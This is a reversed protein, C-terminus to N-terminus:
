NFDIHIQIIHSNKWNNRQVHKWFEHGSWYSSIFDHDLLHNSNISYFNIVQCSISPVVFFIYIKTEKVQFAFPHVSNEMEFSVGLINRIDNHTSFSRIMFYEIRNFNSQNMQFTVQENQKTLKISNCALKKRINTQHNSINALM